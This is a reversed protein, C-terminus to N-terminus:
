NKTASERERDVLLEAMEIELASAIKGLWELDADYQGSFVAFLERQDIGARAAVDALTIGRAETIRGLNEAVLIHAPRNEM